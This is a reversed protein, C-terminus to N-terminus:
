NKLFKITKNKEVGNIKAFYIGQNLQSFDIEEESNMLQKTRLVRGNTDYIRLVTNQANCACHVGFRWGECTHPPLGM